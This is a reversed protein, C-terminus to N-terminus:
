RILELIGTTPYCLSVILEPAGKTFLVIENVFSQSNVSNNESSRVVLVSARQLVPIFPFRKVLGLVLSKSATQEAADNATLNM